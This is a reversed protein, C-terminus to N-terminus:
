DRIGLAATAEDYSMGILDNPVMNGTLVTGPPVLIVRLAALNVVDQAQPISSGDPNRLLIGLAANGFGVAISYRENGQDTAVLVLPAPAQWWGQAFGEFKVYLLVLGENQVDEPIEFDEDYPLNIAKAASGWELDTFLYTTVNASGTPGQPGQPGQPGEPGAPGEPGEPGTPGEPGAPGVPGEEGQPGVPGTDGTCAAAAFTVVGILLLWRMAAVGRGVEGRYPSGYRASSRMM